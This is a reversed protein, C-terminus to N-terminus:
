RGAMSGSEAHLWTWQGAARQCFISEESSPQAHRQAVQLRAILESTSFPKTIYDDAGSSHDGQRARKGQVSVVLIPVSCWERLRSMVDLGDLDPLGLDLLVLDRISRLWKPSAKNGM